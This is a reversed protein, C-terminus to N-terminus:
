PRHHRVEMQIAASDPQLPDRLHQAPRHNANLDTFDNQTFANETSRHLLLDRDPQAMIRARPHAGHNHPPDASRASRSGQPRPPLFGNDVIWYVREASASPQQIMVNAVPCGFPEVGTTDECRGFGKGRHVDYAALYAVAGGRDYDHNIRTARATAPGLTPHCRRRAQISTKEDASLVYDGAGLTKGQWKRDRLDLM